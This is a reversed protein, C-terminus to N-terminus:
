LSPRSMSRFVDRLGYSTNMWKRDLSHRLLVKPREPRHDFKGGKRRLNQFSSLRNLTYTERLGLTLLLMLISATLVVTHQYLPNTKLHLYEACYRAPIPTSSLYNCLAIIKWSKLYAWWDCIFNCDSNERSKKFVIKARKGSRALASRHPDCGRAVGRHRSVSTLCATCTTLSVNLSFPGLPQM